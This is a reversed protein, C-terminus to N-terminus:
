RQCTPCWHSSRGGLRERRLVSGCRRCPQGQRRYVWAMGGYSGNTGTLHIVPYARQPDGLVDLLREIPELSLGAIRGATAERNVHADLHDLAGQYDM